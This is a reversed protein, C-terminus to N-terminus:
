SRASAPTEWTRFREGRLSYIVGVGVAYFAAFAEWGPRCLKTGRMLLCLITISVLSLTVYIGASENFAFAALIFFIISGLFSFIFLWRLLRHSVYKYLNWLSLRLLRPRLLRFCNFNRCAIRIKRRYEEKLTAATREYAIADDARVIRYGDCVISMSTFMDDIIDAPVDRFLSRRIAFISGDAGMVSGTDSEQQKLNEEFRWYLSNTAATASEKENTYRLHGVVCGVTPDTFRQLLRPIATLEYEVNADTFVVFTDEVQGLLTNMGVSKGTRSESVVLHIKEGFSRLINATDDSCGDAYAFINLAINQQALFEKISLLNTIRDRIPKAENYACLCVACSVQSTGSQQPLENNKKRVLIRKAIELSLPYSTFPHFAAIGLLIAIVLFVVAM